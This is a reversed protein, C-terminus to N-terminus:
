MICYDTGDQVVDVALNELPITFDHKNITFTLIEDLGLRDCQMNAVSCMGWHEGSSCKMNPVSRSITNSIKDFYDPSFGIYPYGMEFIVPPLDYSGVIDTNGIKFGSLVQDWKDGTGFWYIDGTYDQEDWGGITLFSTRMIEEKSRESPLGPDHSIDGALKQPTLTISYANRDILGHFAASAILGQAKDTAKENGLGCVANLFKRNTVQESWDFDNVESVKFFVQKSKCVQTKPNNTQQKSTGYMGLCIKDMAM